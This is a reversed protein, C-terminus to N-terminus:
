ESRGALRNFVRRVVYSRGLSVLTFLISVLVNQEVSAEISLLPFVVLQTAFGVVCGIAVNALSETLSMGRTQTM